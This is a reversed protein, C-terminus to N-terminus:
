ESFEARRLSEYAAVLEAFREEQLLRLAFARRSFEGCRLWGQRRGMWYTPFM